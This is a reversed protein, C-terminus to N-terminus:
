SARRPAGLRWCAVDTEALALEQELRVATARARDREGVVHAIGADYLLSALEAAEKAKMLEARLQSEELLHLEHEVDFEAACRRALEEATRVQERLNSEVVESWEPPSVLGERIDALVELVERNTWMLADGFGAVNDVTKDIYALVDDVGHLGASVREEAM